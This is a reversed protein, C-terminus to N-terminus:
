RRELSVLLSPVPAGREVRASRTKIALVTFGNATAQEELYGRSHRFRMTEALEFGEGTWLTEVTFVFPAGQAMARSAAAFLPRLDGLYVLVDAAVLCDYAGADAAQLFAVAEDVFLADYVARREAQAIMKPSVDVGELRDAFPRVMPGALGTGCGLDLARAYRRGLGALIEEILEPGSYHLDERIHRDFRAAYDDFLRAVYAKALSPAAVGRLREMRAGAGLRDTPDLALAKAYCAAAGEEDGMKERAKGLDSWAPAFGPARELCQEFVEAAAAWDAEKALLRGYSWRREAQPDDCILPDPM